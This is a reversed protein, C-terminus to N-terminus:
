SLMLVQQARVAGDELIRVQVQKLVADPPLAFTGEIRKYFRFSIRYRNADAGAENSSLQQPLTMMVTRGRQQLTIVFQLDGSFDKSPKGGKVLLIRYRMQHPVSDPEVQFRKISIGSVAAAGGSLTEFFALDDKLSANEIELSKAEKALQEQTSREINLRSEVANSAEVLRDRDRTLTRVQQRLQEAEAKYDAGIGAFRRGTDYAWWGLAISISLMVIVAVARLPWPIHTRITM